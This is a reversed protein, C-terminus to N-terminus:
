RTSRRINTRWWDKVAKDSNNEATNLSRMGYDCLSVIYSEVIGYHLDFCLGLVPTKMCANVNTAFWASILNLGTVMIREIEAVDEALQDNADDIEDVLQNYQGPYRLSGRILSGDHLAVNVTSMVIIGNNGPALVTHRKLVEVTIEANVQPCPFMAAMGFVLLSIALSFIQFRSKQLRIAFTRSTNKEERQPQSVSFGSRNDVILSHLRAQLAPPTNPSRVRNFAAALYNLNETRM